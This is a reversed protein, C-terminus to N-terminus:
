RMMVEEYVAMMERAIYDENFRQVYEYGKTVLKECLAEDNLLSTIADRIEDINQPDVYVAGPGGAESFCG